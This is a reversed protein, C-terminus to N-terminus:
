ATRGADPAGGGSLHRAENEAGQRRTEAESALRRNENEAAQRRAEIESAQRRTENEAAQSRATVESAQGRADNEARRRTESDLRASEEANEGATSSGRRFRKFISPM